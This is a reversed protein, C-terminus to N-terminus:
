RARRCRASPIQVVTRHGSRLRAHRDMLLHPAGCCEPEVDGHEGRQARGGPQEERLRARRDEPEQGLETDLRALAQAAAAERRRRLSVGEMAWVLGTVILLILLFLAFNV